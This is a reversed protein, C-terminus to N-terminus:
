ILILLDTDDGVVVVPKTEALSCASMVIDYEADGSSQKVQIGEEEMQSSMINILKQKNRPNALFPRKKMKLIMDSTFDVDVGMDTGTRQQHTEDKTSPDSSYGDSVVLM